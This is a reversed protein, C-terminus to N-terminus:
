GVCRHRDRDGSGRGAFTIHITPPLHISGTRPQYDHINFAVPYAYGDWGALEWPFHEFEHVSLSNAHKVILPEEIIRGM